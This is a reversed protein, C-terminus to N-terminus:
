ELFKKTLIQHYTIIHWGFTVHALQFWLVIECGAEFEM